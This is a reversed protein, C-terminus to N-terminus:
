KEPLADIQKELAAVKAATAAKAAPTDTNQAYVAPLGAACFVWMTAIALLKSLISHLHM